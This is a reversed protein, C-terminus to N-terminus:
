HWVLLGFAIRWFALTVSAFLASQAARAFLLSALVGDSDPTMQGQKGRAYDKWRFTVREQDLTLLRHHSIAVRHTYRGLYRV